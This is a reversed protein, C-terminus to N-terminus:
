SLPNWIGRARGATVFEPPVQMHGQEALWAATDNWNKSFGQAGNTNNVEITSAWLWYPYGITAFESRWHHQWTFPYFDAAQRAPNYEDMHVWLDTCALVYYLRGSKHKAVAGWGHAPTYRITGDKRFPQCADVFDHLADIWQNFVRVPTYELNLQRGEKPCLCQISYV